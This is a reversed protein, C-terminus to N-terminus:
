NKSNNIDVKTKNGEVNKTVTSNAEDTVNTKKISNNLEQTTNTDQTKVTANAEITEKTNNTDAEEIKTANSEISNKDETKNAKEETPTTTNTETAKIEESPATKNSDTAEKKGLKINSIIPMNLITAGANKLLPYIKSNDLTDKFKEAVQPKTSFAFVILAFIFFLKIIKILMGGLRSTASINDDNSGILAVGKGIYTALTLFLVFIIVLSLLNLVNISIADTLNNHIYEAVTKHFYSAVFIGGILGIAGFLEKTFGNLLGKISLLLILGIVVIDFINLGMIETM